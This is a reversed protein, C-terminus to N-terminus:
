IHILSLAYGTRNKNNKTTSHTWQISSDPVDAASTTRDSVFTFEFAACRNEGLSTISVCPVSSQNVANGFIVRVRQFNFATDTRLTLASCTPIPLFNNGKQFALNSRLVKPQKMQSSVEVLFVLCFVQNIWRLPVHHSPSTLLSHQRLGVIQM